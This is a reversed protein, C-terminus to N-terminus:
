IVKQLIFEHQAGADPRLVGGAGSIQVRRIRLVDTPELDLSPIVVTQGSRAGNTGTDRTYNNDFNTGVKVGNVELFLAIVDRQTNGPTESWSAYATLNYRGEPVDTVEHNAADVTAGLENTITSGMFPVNALATSAFDFTNNTLRTRLTLGADSEGGSVTIGM